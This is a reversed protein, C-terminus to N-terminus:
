CGSWGVCRMPGIAGEALSSERALPRRAWIGSAGRRPAAFEARQGRARRSTRATAIHVYSGIRIRGNPAILSTFGDIRVNDGITINELGIITCNRAIVSNEGVRAFGFSRLEPSTYYGPDFPNTM